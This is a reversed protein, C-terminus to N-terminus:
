GERALNPSGVRPYGRVPLATLLEFREEVFDDALEVVDATLGVKRCAQAVPNSLERCGDRGAVERAGGQPARGADDDADWYGEYGYESAKWAMDKELEDAHRRAYALVDQVQRM